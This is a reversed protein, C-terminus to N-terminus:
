DEKKGSNHLEFHCNKCLLVCKELEQLGNEETFNKVAAPSVQKDEKPHHFDLAAACKSYGCYSCGGLSMKYQYFWGNVGTHEQKWVRNYERSYIKQCNISCFCRLRLDTCSDNCVRCLKSKRAELRKRHERLAIKTKHKQYYRAAYEKISQAM